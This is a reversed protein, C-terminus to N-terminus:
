LNGMFNYSYKTKNNTKGYDLLIMYFVIQMFILNTFIFIEQRFFINIIPYRQLINNGDTAINAGPHLAAQYRVESPVLPDCTRIM